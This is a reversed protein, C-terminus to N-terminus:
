AWRDGKFGADGRKVHDFRGASARRLAGDDGQLGGTVWARGGTRRGPTRESAHPHFAALALATLRGDFPGAEQKQDGENQGGDTM